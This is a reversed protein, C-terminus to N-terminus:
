PPSMLALVLAALGLALGLALGFKRMGSDGDFGHRREQHCAGPPKPWCRDDTAGIAANRSIPSLLRSTKLDRTITNADLLIFRKNERYQYKLLIHGCNSAAASPGSPQGRDATAGVQQNGATLGPRGDVHRDACSRRSDNAFGRRLSVM